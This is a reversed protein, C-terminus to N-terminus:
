ECQKGVAEEGETVTKTTVKTVTEKTVVEGDEGETRVTTVETRTQQVVVATGPQEVGEEVAPQSELPQSETEPEIMAALRDELERRKIDEEEAVVMSTDQDEQPPAEPQSQQGSVAEAASVDANSAKRLSEEDADIFKIDSPLDDLSTITLNSKPGDGNPTLTVVPAAKALLEEPNNKKVEGNKHHGNKSAANQPARGEPHEGPKEGTQKELEKKSPTCGM